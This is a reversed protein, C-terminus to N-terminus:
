QHEAAQGDQSPSFRSGAQYQLRLLQRQAAESALGGLALMMLTAPESTSVALQNGPASEVVTGFNERLMIFDALDIRGDENFDTRWDGAAGFVDVFAELDADDVDWDVDTDGDLMGIVSIEGTVYLSSTNWVKRGSLEPLEIADFAGAPAGAFDLIDFTDGKALVLDDILSVQLTGGPTLEGGISLQDHEDGPILGGLEIILTANAGFTVDGELSVSAPSSGPSYTGEFIVEGAGIFSGPGTVDGYFVVRASAATDIASGDHDVDDYFTAHGGSAVTVVSNDADSLNVTGFVDTFGSEFNMAGKNNLGGGFEFVGSGSITGTVDIIEDEDTDAIDNVLAADFEMTGGNNRLLGLNSGVTGTMRIRQAAGVRVEGGDQNDLPNGIIGDGHVLGTNALTAGNVQGGGILEIDGANTIGNPATLVGTVNAEAAAAITVGAHTTLHGAESVRVEGANHLLNDHIDAVTGGTVIIKGTNTVEGHIEGSGGSFQIDGENILGGTCTLVGRGSITGGAENTLDQDFTVAGGLLNIAGSNTNGAGTFILLDGTMARVQGGANNDLVNAIAGSGHLLGTNTILGGSLSSGSVMEIEGANVIETGASLASDVEVKGLATIILDDTITMAGSPQTRLEAVGSVTAGITMRRITTAAAPGTVVLGNDPDITVGTGTSPVEATNWNAGTDWSGSVGSTWWAFAVPLSFVVGKDSDGGYATMGYLMENEMTLSGFPQSGDDIGGAFEHLLEYGSGDTAIEFIVGKNNAGGFKAMGYLMGGELLLSGPASSGDAGSFEHLVSFGSGDVGIKYIVGKDSDGGYYTMGYLVGSDLIAGGQPSAGDATGGAFEHLHTYGSGDIGMSYIVGEDSDGGDKAVGYLMSGDVVMGDRPGAGDAVGGVFTHSVAFGSGGTEIKYAVGLNSGGGYKTIGYLWGASLALSGGPNTGGSSFEHLNTYGSGNTQMAFVVGVNSLGGSVTTGYLTTGDLIMPNSANRGDGAGSAFEHLLTYGSGDTGLTYITGWGHAGDNAATGYIAGGDVVLAGNDPNAGDGVGGAFEHLINIQALGVAPFALGVTLIIMFATKIRPANSKSSEAM